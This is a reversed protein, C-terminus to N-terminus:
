VSVDQYKLPVPMGVGFLHRESRNGTQNLGHEIGFPEEGVIDIVDETSNLFITRKQRGEQKSVTIRIRDALFQPQRSKQDRQTM